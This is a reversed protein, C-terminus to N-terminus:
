FVISKKSEDITNELLSLIIAQRGIADAILSRRQQTYQFFDSIAPTPGDVSKALTKLKQSFNGSL